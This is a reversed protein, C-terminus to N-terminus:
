GRVVPFKGARGFSGWIGVSILTGVRPSLTVVAVMARQILCGPSETAASSGMTSSSVSLTVTSTEEGVAPTSVAMLKGSPLSTSTPARSAMSSLPAAAEGRGMDGGDAGIAERDASVGMALGAALGWGPMLGGGRGRPGTARGAAGSAVGTMGVAISCSVGTWGTAPCAGIGEAVRSISSFLVAGAAIPGPEPLSPRM